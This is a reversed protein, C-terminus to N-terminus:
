QVQLKINHVHWNKIYHTGYTSCTSANVNQTILRVSNFPPHGLKFQECHMQISVGGFICFVTSLGWPETIETTFCHKFGASM